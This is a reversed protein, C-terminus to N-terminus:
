PRGLLARTRNWNCSRRTRSEFKSMRSKFGGILPVSCDSVSSEALHRQELSKNTLVILNLTRILNEILMEKAIHTDSESLFAMRNETDSYHVEYEYIVSNSEIYKSNSLFSKEEIFVFASCNKDTDAGHSVM